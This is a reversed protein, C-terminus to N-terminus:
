RKFPSSWPAGRLVRANQCIPDHDHNHHHITSRAIDGIATTEIGDVRWLEDFGVSTSRPYRLRLQICEVQSFHYTPSIGLVVFSINTLGARDASGVHSDGRGNAHCWGIIGGVVASNYVVVTIIVTARELVHAMLVGLVPRFSLVSCTFLAPGMCGRNATVDASFHRSAHFHPM